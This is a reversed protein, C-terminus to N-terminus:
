RRRAAKSAAGDRKLIGDQWRFHRPVRIRKGGRTYSYSRVEVYYTEGM